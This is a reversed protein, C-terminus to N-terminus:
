QAWTALHETYILTGSSLALAWWCLSFARTSRWYYGSTGLAARYKTHLVWMCVAMVITFKQIASAPMHHGYLVSNPAGSIYKTQGWLCRVRGAIHMRFFADPVIQLVWTGARGGTIGRIYMELLGPHVADVLFSVFYLPFFYTGLEASVHWGHHTVSTTSFLDGSFAQSTHIVFIKLWGCPLHSM